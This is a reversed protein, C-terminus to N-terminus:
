LYASSVDGFGNNGEDCLSATCALTLFYLYQNYKSSARGAKLLKNIGM